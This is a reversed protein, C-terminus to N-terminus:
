DVASNTSFVFITLQKKTLYNKIDYGQNLFDKYLSNAGHKKEIVIYLKGKGSLHEVAQKILQYMKEKGAHIPPNFVILDFFIDVGNLGDNNLIQYDKINNLQANIKTYECARQTIDIFTVPVRFKKALYIGIFGYGCGLDLINHYEEDPINSVLFYSNNDVHDKSFLGTNTKLSLKIDDKNFEILKPQDILNVNNDFYQKM